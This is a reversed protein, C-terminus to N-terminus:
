GDFFEPDLRRLEPLLEDPYDASSALKVGSVHWWLSGTQQMQMWERWSEVATFSLQSPVRTMRPDALQRGDGSFNMLDADPRLAPTVPSVIQDMLHVIGGMIFWPRTTRPPTEPGGGAPVMSDTLLRVKSPGYRTAPVECVKQNYPNLWNQLPQETQWDLLIGVYRSQMHFELSSERSYLSRQAGIMKFLPRAVQGPVLGFVHGRVIDYVPDGALDGRLKIYAELNKAPDDLQLDHVIAADSASDGAATVAAASLGLTSIGTLIKRRTLEAM